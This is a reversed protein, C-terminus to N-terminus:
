CQMNTENCLVYSHMWMHNKQQNSLMTQKMAYYSHVHMYYNNFCHKQRNGLMTQKMTYYSHVRMHKKFRHKQQNNLM